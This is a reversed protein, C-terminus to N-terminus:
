LYERTGTKPDTVLIKAYRANEKRTTGSVVSWKRKRGQKAYYNDMWSDAPRPGVYYTRLKYGCAKLMARLSDVLELPIATYETREGNWGPRQRVRVPKALPGAKLGADNWELTPM